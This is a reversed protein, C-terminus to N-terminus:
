YANVANYDSLQDKVSLPMVPALTPFSLQARLYEGLKKFLVGDPPLIVIVSSESNWDSVSCKKAKSKADTYSFYINLNILGLAVM